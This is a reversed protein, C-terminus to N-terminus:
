KQLIVQSQGKVSVLLSRSLGSSSDPFRRTRHDYDRDLLSAVIDMSVHSMMKKFLDGSRHVDLCAVGPSWKIWINGHTPRKCLDGPHLDLYLHCNYCSPKSCRIYRDNRIFQLDNAFIHDALIIEAHVVPRLNPDNLKAEFLTRLEDKNRKHRNQLLEIIRNQDLDSSTARLARQLAREFSDSYVQPRAFARMTSKIDQITLDRLLAPAAAATGVLDEASRYWSGLCGLHHRISSWTTDNNHTYKRELVSM